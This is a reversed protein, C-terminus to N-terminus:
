GPFDAPGAGKAKSAGIRRPTEPAHRDLEKIGIPLSFRRQRQRRIFAPRGDPLDDGELLFSPGDQVRGSAKPGHDFVAPAAMVVDQDVDIGVFRDGPSAVDSVAAGDIAPGASERGHGLRRPCDIEQRTGNPGPPRDKEPLCLPYARCARCCMILNKGQWRSPKGM